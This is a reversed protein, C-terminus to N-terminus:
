STTPEFGVLEVPQELSKRFKPSVLAAILFTPVSVIFSFQLLIGIVAVLPLVLFLGLTVVLALLTDEVIRKM